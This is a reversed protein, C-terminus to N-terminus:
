RSVLRASKEDELYDLLERWAESAYSAVKHRQAAVALTLKDASAKEENLQKAVDWLGDVNDYGTNVRQQAWGSKDKWYKLRAQVATLEAEHQRLQGLDQLVKARVEEIAKIEELAKLAHEREEKRSFLPINIQVGATSGSTIFNDNVSAESGPGQSARAFLSTHELIRRMPSSPTYERTVTRYAGLIPSHALIFELAQQEEWALVPASLCLLLTFSLYIRFM